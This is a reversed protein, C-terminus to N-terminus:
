AAPVMERGTGQAAIVACDGTCGGGECCLCMAATGRNGNASMPMRRLSGSANKSQHLVM